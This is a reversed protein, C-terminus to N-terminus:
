SSKPRAVIYIFGQVQDALLKKKDGDQQRLMWWLSPMLFGSIAKIKHWSDSWRGSTPPIRWFNPALRKLM